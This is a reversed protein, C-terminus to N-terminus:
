DKLKAGCAPCSLSGPAFKAGCYKCFKPQMEQMEMATQAAMKQKTLERDLIETQVATATQQKRIKEEAENEAARRASQEHAAFACRFLAHLFHARFRFIGIFDM